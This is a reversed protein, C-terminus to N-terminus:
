QQFERPIAELVTNKDTIINVVPTTKERNGCSNLLAEKGISERVYKVKTPPLGQTQAVCCLQRGYHPNEAYLVSDKNYTLSYKVNSDIM